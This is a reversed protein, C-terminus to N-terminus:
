GPYDFDPLQIMSHSFSYAFNIMSFFVWILIPHIDRFIQFAVNCLFCIQEAICLTSQPDM